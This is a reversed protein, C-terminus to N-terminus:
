QQGCKGLVRSETLIESFLGHYDRDVRGLILIANLTTM